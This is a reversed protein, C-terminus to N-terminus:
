PEFETGAPTRCKGYHGEPLDCYNGAEDRHWCQEDPTFWKKILKVINTFM